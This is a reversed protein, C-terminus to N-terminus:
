TLYVEEVLCHKNHIDNIKDQIDTICAYLTKDSVIINRLSAAEERLQKSLQRMINTENELDQILCRIKEAYPDNLNTQTM